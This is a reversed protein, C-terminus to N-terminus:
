ALRSQALLVLAVMVVAFMLGDFRDLVGGHGPIFGSTDKAHFHRKVASEAIDGIQAVIALAAGAAAFLILPRVELLYAAILAFFAAWFVAGALGAWTKSPSLNPVLKPGGITKGALYAGTDTAWIVFLLSVVIELGLNHEERIWIISICPFATYLIGLVSWKPDRATMLAVFSILLAGIAIIVLGLSPEGLSTLSIGLLIVGSHIYFVTLIGKGHVLRTWEFAMLVAVLGVLATFLWGGQWVTWLSLPVLLLASVWRLRLSAPTRPVAEHDAKLDQQPRETM